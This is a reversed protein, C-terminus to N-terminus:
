KHKIILKSADNDITISGFRELVSQGLLLPAKQNKVVSAEVNKLTVDGVQVERICIVAGDAINGDATLYKRAGRFDKSSLYDNKLMFNAEVSSITVDSAGTDFIFKLPLGNISCPVEYTGGAMKKMNVESVLLEAAEPTIEPEDTEDGSPLDRYKEILAKYGPLDRLPNMDDDHEMHSFKRYGKRFACELAELADDLKGMRALLCAKDYLNGNNYPEAEVMKDIWEIAEDDRGLGHLAYHRCSGDEADKDLELVKEYDKAAEETRGMEKLLDARSVFLYPETKCLDIGQNYYDMAKVKDEQLEYCWGIAYYEYGSSPDEEMATMYDAIAKDYQSMGRYIDGRNVIFTNDGSQEIARNIEKLANKMDGMESYCVSKYYSLSKDTGYESEVKDYLEIARRYDGHREYLEILLGVWRNSTKERNMEAKVKAVGYSYHRGAFPAAVWAPLDEDLEYYKLAADVCEDDRGLKDMIQMRFRYIESYSSDYAAAKDLWSLAEDYKEEDMRNRSLGIMAACDSKDMKLMRDYVKEADQPRDACYLANAYDFMYDQVREPNDKKALKMAKRYSKAAMAHMDMDAYIKGQLGYLTSKFTEHKGRYVKIAHGLDRLASDNSDHRWYIKARLFRSEIHDPTEELQKNVLELAKDDDDEDYFTDLAKRFNYDSVEARQTCAHVSVLALAAVIIFIIRKM